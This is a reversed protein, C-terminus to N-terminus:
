RPAGASTDLAPHLFTSFVFDREAMNAHCTICMLKAPPNRSNGDVLIKGETDWQIFQWDNADPDYGKERKIMATITLPTGPKPEGPLYNEKLFVTGPVYPEFQGSEPAEEIDQDVYLRIYERYNKAYREADRNMYISVNQKWHLGSFEVGTVPTWRARYDGFAEAYLDPMKWPSPPHSDGSGEQAQGAAPKEPHASPSSGGRKCSASFVALLMAMLAAPVRAVPSAPVPLIKRGVYIIRRKRGQM